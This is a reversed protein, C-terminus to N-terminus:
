YYFMVASICAPSKQRVQPHHCVEGMAEKVHRIVCFVYHLWSCSCAPPTVFNLNSYIVCVSLCRVAKAKHSLIMRFFCCFSILLKKASIINCDECDIKSSCVTKCNPSKLDVQRHKVRQCFIFFIECLYM